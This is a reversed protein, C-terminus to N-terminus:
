DSPTAGLDSRGPRRSRVLAVLGYVVWGAVLIGCLTWPLKTHDENEYGTRVMYGQAEDYYYTGKPMPVAYSEANPKNAEIKAVEWTTLEEVVSFPVTGPLNSPDQPGYVRIQGKSPYFGAGAVEVIETTELVKRPNSGVPKTRAPNGSVREEIIWHIRVPLAGRQPDLWARVVEFRQPNSSNLNAVPKRRELIVTEHGDITERGVNTFGSPGARFFMDIPHWIGDPGWDPNEVGLPPFDNHDDQINARRVQASLTGGGIPTCWFFGRHPNGLYSIMSFNTYKSKLSEESLAEDPLSWDNGRLLSDWNAPASVVLFRTRDTRFSQVLRRPQRLQAFLRRRGQIQQNKSHYEDTTDDPMQALQAELSAIAATEHAFWEDTSSKDLRWQLKLTKFSKFNERFQSFLAGPSDAEAGDGVMMSLALVMSFVLM